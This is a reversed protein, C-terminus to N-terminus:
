LERVMRVKYFEARTRVIIYMYTCVQRMEEDEDESDSTQDAFGTLHISHPSIAVTSKEDMLITPHDSTCPSCPASLPEGKIM